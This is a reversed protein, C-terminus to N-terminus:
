IYLGENVNRTDAIDFQKMKGATIAFINVRISHVIYKALYVKYEIREAKTEEIKIGFTEM